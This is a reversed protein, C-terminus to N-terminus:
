RRTGASNQLNLTILKDMTSTMHSAASGGDLEATLPPCSDRLHHDLSAECHGHNEDVSTQHSEVCLSMSTHFGEDVNTVGNVTSSGSANRIRVSNILTTRQKRSSIM